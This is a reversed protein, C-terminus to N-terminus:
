RVVYTSPAVEDPGLDGAAVLTPRLLILKKLANQAGYRQLRYHGRRWHAKVTRGDGGAEGSKVPDRPAEILVYDYARVLKRAAKARKGGSKLRNLSEELEKREPKLARRADPLGIYLLSKAVLKVAEVVASISDESSLRLGMRRAEDRDKYFADHIVEELSAAPDALSLIISQTADDSAHKKGVPSGTIVLYLCEGVDRHHGREVYCGEISHWATESNWIKTQWDRREGFEIFCFPLPPQMYSVPISSDIDTRELLEVLKDDLKFHSYQLCHARLWACFAFAGGQETSGPMVEAASAVSQFRPLRNETTLRYCAEALVLEPDRLYREIVPWEPGFMERTMEFHKAVMADCRVPHPLRMIQPDASAELEQAM